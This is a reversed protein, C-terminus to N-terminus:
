KGPTAEEPEDPEANASKIAEVAAGGEPAEAPEGEGEGKEDDETEGAPEDDEGMEFTVPPADDPLSPDKISVSDGENLAFHVVKEGNEVLTVVASTITLKDGPELRSFIEKIQPPLDDPNLVISNKIDLSDM